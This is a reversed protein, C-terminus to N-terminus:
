RHSLLWAILVAAGAIPSESGGLGLLADSAGSTTLARIPGAAASVLPEVFGFGLLATVVAGSQSPVLLGITADLGAYLATHVAVGALIWAVEGDALGIPM